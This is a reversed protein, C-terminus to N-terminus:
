QRGHCQKYKKGSGCPCPENRGVKPMERRITEVKAEVGQAKMAAQQDATPAAFGAGTAEAHRFVMPAPGGAPGPVRHGRGDGDASGDGGGSARVKFIMDTVRGAIRAWMQDFLQRGEIAFQSQPHTQDGGLPRQMIASKLHDMELLHDKWAQDYIRLLVFHELLTLEWRLMERGQSVIAARLRSQDDEGLGARVGDREATSLAYSRDFRSQSWARGFRQRAWEIAEGASKARIAVEIERELRGELFERNLALMRDRVEAASRGQIDALTWGAQFKGNVWNL